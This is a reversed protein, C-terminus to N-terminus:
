QIVLTRPDTYVSSYGGNVARVRWQYRRERKLTVEVLNDATITDVYLTIISDFRPSVIQLQYDALPRIHEWAFKQMSDASVVSDSPAVLIIQEKSVDQEFVEDCSYFAVTTTLCILLSIYYYQKGM